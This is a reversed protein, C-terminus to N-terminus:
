ALQVIRYNYNNTTVHRETDPKRNRTHATDTIV